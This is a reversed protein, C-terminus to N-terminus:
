DFVVNLHSLEYFNRKADNYKKTQESFNDLVIQAQDYTENVIVVQDNIQEFNIKEELFLHYMEKERDLRLIYLDYWEDYLNYREIMIDYMNQASNKVDETEIQEILPEIQIFEEKSLIMKENEEDLLKLREDILEDAKEIFQEIKEKDDFPQDILDTYLTHEDAELSAMQERVEGLTGEHTATKELFNYIEAEIDEKQCATLLLVSVIIVALLFNPVKM